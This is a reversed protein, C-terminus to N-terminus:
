RPVVHTGVLRFGAPALSADIDADSADMAFTAQLSGDRGYLARREQRDPRVIVIGFVNAPLDAPIRVKRAMHAETKIAPSHSM